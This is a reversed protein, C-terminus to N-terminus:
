LSTGLKPEKIGKMYQWIEKGKGRRHEEKNIQFPFFVETHVERKIGDL